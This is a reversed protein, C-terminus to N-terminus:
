LIRRDRRLAQGARGQENGFDCWQPLHQGKRETRSSLRGGVELLAGLRGRITIEGASPDTIRSLVKLLTSKGAGNLGILGVVEGAAITVSVDRLAWYQGQEPGLRNHGFLEAFSDRLSARRPVLDYTKSVNCIEIAPKM